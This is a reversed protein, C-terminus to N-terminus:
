FVIRQLETMQKLFQQTAAIPNDAETIASILSVGDVGAQLIAPLREFNIGGIAVLPYHLLRRWRRLQAIGQPKDSIIKSTTPYIPGCAIYSPNLAHARAIEYYGNTSIGLYMGARHIKEIDADQLDDQGLHVGDAGLRLALEWYDNIFLTAGYKKAFLVSRKIEDELAKKPANKIRLQICKVGQPLLKELWHSSDVVPYLGIQCSKFPPPLEQLPYRSLYPLDEEDDPGEEQFLTTSDLGRRIMRNVVMKAMVIADKIAYGQELCAVIAAPSAAYCASDHIDSIRQNAIWFSETGNTWYNQCFLADKVLGGNLLVSKAGLAVIAHAVKQIDQYSVLARNVIKEAEMVQLMIVSCASMDVKKLTELSGEMGTRLSPALDAMTWVIPKKM